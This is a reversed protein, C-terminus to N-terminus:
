IVKLICLKDGDALEGPPTMSSGHWSYASSYRDMYKRWSIIEKEIQKDTKKDWYKKYDERIM